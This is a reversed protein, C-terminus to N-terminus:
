QSDSCLRQQNLSLSFKSQSQFPYSEPKWLGFRLHTYIGIFQQSTAQPCTDQPDQLLGLPTAGCQVWESVQMYLSTKGLRTNLSWPDWFFSFNIHSITGRFGVLRVVTLRGNISRCSSEQFLSGKIGRFEDKACVTLFIWSYFSSSHISLMKLQYRLVKFLPNLYTSWSIINNVHCDLEKLSNFVATLKLLPFIMQLKRSKDLVSM